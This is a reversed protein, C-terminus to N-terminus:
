ISQLIGELQACFADVTELSATKLWLGKRHSSQQQKKLIVQLKLDRKGSEIREKLYERLHRLAVSAVSKAAATALLTLVIEAAGLTGGKNQISKIDDVHPALDEVFKTYLESADMKANEGSFAVIIYKQEADIECESM